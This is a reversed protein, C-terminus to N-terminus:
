DFSNTFVEKADKLGADQLHEKWYFESGFMLLSESVIRPCGLTFLDDILPACANFLRCKQENSCKQYVDSCKKLKILLDLKKM